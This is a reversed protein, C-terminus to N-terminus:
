NVGRKMFLTSEQNDGDTAECADFVKCEEKRRDYTFARCSDDTRCRLECPDLNMGSLSSVPPNVCTTGPFSQYRAGDAQFWQPKSSIPPPRSHEVIIKAVKKKSM